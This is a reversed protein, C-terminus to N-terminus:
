SPQNELGRYHSVSLAYNDSEPLYIYKIEARVEEVVVEWGDLRKGLLPNETVFKYQFVIDQLRNKAQARFFNGFNKDKGLAKGLDGIFTDEKDGGQEGNPHDSRTAYMPQAQPSPSRPLLPVRSPPHPHANARDLAAQREAQSPKEPGREWPPAEPMREREQPAKGRSATSERSDRSPRQTQSPPRETSKPSPSPREWPPREPMREPASMKKTNDSSSSRTREPATPDVPVLRGSGPPPGSYAQPGPYPQVGSLSGSHVRSVSPKPPGSPAGPDAAKPSAQIVGQRPSNQWEYRPAKSLVPTQNGPGDYEDFADDNIRKRPDRSNESTRRQLDQPERPDRSHPYSSPPPPPGRSGPPGQPPPGHRPADVDMRDSINTDSHTHKHRRTDGNSQNSENPGLLRPDIPIQQRPDPPAQRPDYASQQQRPDKTYQRPDASSPPRSQSEFPPKRTDSPITPTRRPDVSMSRPPEGGGPPQQQQQAGRALHHYQRSDVARPRHPPPDVGVMPYPRPEGGMVAHSGPYQRPDVM